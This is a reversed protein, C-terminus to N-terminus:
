KWVGELNSNSVM